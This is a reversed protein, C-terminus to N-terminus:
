SEQYSGQEPAPLENLSHCGRCVSTVPLGVLYERGRSVRIHLRTGEIEGLLKGCEKCRWETKRM